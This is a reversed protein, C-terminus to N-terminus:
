NSGPSHLLEAVDIVWEREGAELAYESNTPKRIWAELGTHLSTGNNDKVLVPLVGASSLEDTIAIASLFDNSESTQMLNITITGTKNNSKSRTVTGDVGTKMTWSDANREVTVKTDEGFGEVTHIGFIIVLDKANYTKLM